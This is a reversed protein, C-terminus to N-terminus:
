LGTAVVNSGREKILQQRVKLKRYTNLPSLAGHSRKRAEALLPRVDVRFATQLIEQCRTVDNEQQAQALARRDVLLARAYALRIAELSQM